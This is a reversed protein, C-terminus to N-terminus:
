SMGYVRFRFRWEFVMAESAERGLGERDDRREVGGGESM